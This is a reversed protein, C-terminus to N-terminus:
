PPDGLAYKRVFNRGPIRWPLLRWKKTVQQRSLRASRREGCRRASCAAHLSSVLGARQPAMSNKTWVDQVPASGFTPSRSTIWAPRRHGGPSM